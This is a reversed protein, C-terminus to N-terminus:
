IEDVGLDNLKRIHYKQMYIIIELLQMGIRYGKSGKEVWGLAALSELTGHGTSVPVGAGEAVERVSRWELIEGSGLFEVVAVVREVAQIGSRGAETTL